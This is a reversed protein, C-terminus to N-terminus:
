AAGLLHCLESRGLLSLCFLFCEICEGTLDGIEGSDLHERWSQEPIETGQYSLTVDENREVHRRLYRCIVKWDAASHYRKWGWKKFQTEYQNHSYLLTLIEICTHSFLVCRLGHHFGFLRPSVFRRFLVQDEYHGCNQDDDYRSGRPSTKNTAKASAV